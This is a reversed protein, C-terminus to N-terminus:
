ANISYHFTRGKPDKITKIPKGDPSIKQGYYKVSYTGMIGLVNRYSYRDEEAVGGSDVIQKTISVIYTYLKNKQTISMDDWIMFPDIGSEGLIEARLYNGVGSIFDQEVLAIYVPKKSKLQKFLEITFKDSLVDPGLEDLKKSLWKTSDLWLKGMSRQDSFILMRTPGDLTDSVLIKLRPYLAQSTEVNALHWEGTMGLTNGLIFVDKDNHKLTFYIFKGCKEVSIFKIPDRKKNLAIIRNKTTQYDKRKSTIYPGDVITISRLYKDHLISNLQNAIITVEPGEPM